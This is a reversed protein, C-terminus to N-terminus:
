HPKNEKSLAIQPLESSRERENLQTLDDKENKRQFWAGGHRALGLLSDDYRRPPGNLPAENKSWGLFTRAFLYAGLEDKM